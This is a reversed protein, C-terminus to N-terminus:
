KKLEVKARAIEKDGNKILFNIENEETKQYISLIEGERTENIYHIEFDCIEHEIWFDSSFANMLYKIYKVNNVHNNFDIDSALVKQEYVKDIEEFKTNLRLYKKDLVPEICEMDNPYSITNIGRIKRTTVDIPCCEQKVIFSINDGKKFDIELDVTALKKHATYCRAEIFDGLKSYNEFHVKTKILVWVANNKTKNTQNDSNIAGFYDTTVDQALRAANLLNVNMEKDVESYSVEHKKNYEYKM